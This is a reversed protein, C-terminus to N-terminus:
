LRFKRVCVRRCRAAPSPPCSCSMLASLRGTQALVRGLAPAHQENVVLGPNIEVAPPAAPVFTRDTEQAAGLFVLNQLPHFAGSPIAGIPAIMPGHFVHPDFGAGTMRQAQDTIQIRRPALRKFKQGVFRIQRGAHQGFEVPPAPVNLLDEVREFVFQAFGLRPGRTQSGPRRLRLEQPQGVIQEQEVLLYQLLAVADDVVGFVLAPLLAELLHHHATALAPCAREVRRRCNRCAVRRLTLNRRQNRAAMRSWSASVGATSRRM